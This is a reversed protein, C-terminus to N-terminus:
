SVQSQSHLLKDFRATGVPLFYVVAFVAALWAFTKWETKM